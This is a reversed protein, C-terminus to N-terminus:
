YPNATFTFKQNAGGNYTYQQIAAGTSKSNAKVDLALGSNVSTLEYQGSGLSIVQWEQNTAQNSNPWQDVLAGSTKSAAAVDMVQSSYENTLTIINSGLNVVSWLQNSGGNVTWQDLDLGNTHSFGPSEIAMGSNVNILEYTGNPILNSTSALEGYVCLAGSLTSATGFSPLYVMGNAITPPSFKAYNSCYDRTKNQTNNYIQGMGSLNFAYLIGPETGHWAGGGDGSDATNTTAWLIGNSTGNASISLSAGPHGIAQQTGKFTPTTNFTSGNFNYVRLYDSQGWLYLNNNFFNLSHIHNSTAQWNQLAGSDGLHGMNGLNVVRLVGDKGGGVGENNPLLLLGATTLDTDGNDLSQYDSPTHWDSLSLNSGNLKFMTESFDNSGDWTGNGSVVYVNGSGDASPGNGSQWIAGGNDNPSVNFVGVQALSSANYAFTMGKWSGQDCHSSFAFYVNGNALLLSPRELEDKSTFESASITVPSGSQDAGTSISLKHLQHIENGGNYLQDVVYLYKNTTDIVPTGIIGSTGLMDQCSFGMQQVTAPAGFNVHWYQIGSNADFAYVSNGATAIYVVNHTGGAISVNSIVLPQAFVQDDVPDSFLMGFKSSTVNSPTLTDESANVGDRNNDNHQTWVNNGNQAYAATQLVTGVLFCGLIAAAKRTLSTLRNM